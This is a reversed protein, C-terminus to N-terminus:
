RLVTVWGTYTRGTGLKILYYYTGFPAPQGKMTGDWENGRQYHQTEFIKNGWRNFVIVQNGSFNGIREIEWTDDRGDGNPTFANPIRLPPIVTVTVQSTNACGGTGGTLTY